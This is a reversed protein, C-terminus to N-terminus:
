PRGGLFNNEWLEGLTFDEIWEKLSEADKKRFTTEGNDEREVVILDEPQFHNILTVSQTAIIVQRSLSAKKILEALVNIAYPHLGLEPEDLLITSPVANSQAPISLLTALCIFRLTGDSIQKASFVNDTGKESWRLLIMNKATPSEELEFDRFQPYVLRVLEVIRLYNDFHHNKLFFLFPALNEGETKFRYIDDIAQPLKLGANTSTDHFHYAILGMLTKRVASVDPLMEAYQLHSEEETLRIPFFKDVDFRLKKNSDTIIFEDEIRYNYGNTAIEIAYSLNKDNEIEQGFHVLMKLNSSYEGGNFLLSGVGGLDFVYRSLQQDAVRELFRLVSIFNSKGAGNQGILVNLSGLDLTQQRISKFNRIELRKIM